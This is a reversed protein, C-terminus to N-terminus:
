RRLARAITLLALQERPPLSEVIQALEAATANTPSATGIEATGVGSHLWQPNVELASALGLITSDQLRATGGREISSLTPQSIGARKALEVQTMGLRTRTFRVREALSKAIPDKSVM